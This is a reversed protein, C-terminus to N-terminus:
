QRGTLLEFARAIQVRSNLEPSKGLDLLHFIRSITHEVVKETSATRIAIESNTLGGALMKLVDVQKDNLPVKSSSPHKDSRCPSFKAQLIATTVRNIDTSQSKVLYRSGIPLELSRSQSLRPDQFTTLFVIGLLPNVKRLALAVDIGSPGHGLDLDLLAVEIDHKKVGEIALLATKGSLAVEFGSATLSTVLLGRTFDNDELILIKALGM